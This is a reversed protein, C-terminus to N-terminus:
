RGQKPQTAPAFYSGTNLYSGMKMFGSAHGTPAYRETGTIEFPGQAAMQNLRRAQSYQQRMLADNTRRQEQLPKVINYYDEATSFPNNLALYPSVAPGRNINSFPKPNSSGLGGGVLPQRPGVFNQTAKAGIYNQRNIGGIGSPPVASNLIQRQIRGTTHQAISNRAQINNVQTSGYSQAQVSSANWVHWAPVSFVAVFFILKNM